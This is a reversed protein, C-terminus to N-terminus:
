SRASPLRTGRKLRGDLIAARLETYLWKWLDQTNAPHALSLDQFVENKSM